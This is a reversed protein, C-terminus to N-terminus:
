ARLGDQFAHMTHDQFCRIVKETEENPHAYFHFYTQENSSKPFLNRFKSIVPTKTNLHQFTRVSKHQLGQPVWLVRREEVQKWLHADLDRAIRRSKVKIGPVWKAEPLFTQKLAAPPDTFWSSRRSGAVEGPHHQFSSGSVCPGSGRSAVARDLLPPPASDGVGRGSEQFGSDSRGASKTIFPWMVM